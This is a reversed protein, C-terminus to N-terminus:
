KAKDDMQFQFINTLQKKQEWQVPGRRTADFKIVNIKEVVVRMTNRTSNIYKAMDSRCKMTEDLLKSKTDWLELVQLWM